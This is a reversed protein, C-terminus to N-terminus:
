KKLLMKSQYERYDVFEEYAKDCELVKKVASDLDAQAQAKSAKLYNRYLTDICPKWTTVIDGGDEAGPTHRGMRVDEETYQKGSLSIVMAAHSIGGRSKDYPRDVFSVVYASIYDTGNALDDSIRKAQAESLTIVDECDFPRIVDGAVLKLHRNATLPLKIPPAKILLELEEVSSM